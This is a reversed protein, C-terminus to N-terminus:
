GDNKEAKKEEFLIIYISFIITGIVVCCDAFNFVPYSFIPGIDLYDVVYGLRIRDILNGVGGALILVLSFMAMRSKFYNKFLLYAIILLVISTMGVLLWTQGKFIGFAAGYNEVYTLDLIGSIANISGIPMLSNIAWLKILQDIAILITVLVFSIIPLM